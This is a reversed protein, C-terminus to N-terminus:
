IKDKYKEVVGWGEGYLVDEIIMPYDVIEKPQFYLNMEEKAEEVSKSAHVLTRIPHQMKDALEYSEVTYDGRITGADAELPNTHGITKVGLAVAHAGEWVMALLPKGVNDKLLMQRVWKGVELPRRNDEIGRERRSKITREGCKLYWWDADPYQKGIQEMTPVVMKCAVLKLGRREFRGIIEGILHRQISESKVAIFTRERIM